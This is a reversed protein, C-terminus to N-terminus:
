IALLVGASNDNANASVQPAQSINPQLWQHGSLSFVWTDNRLEGDAGSGGFVVMSDQNHEVVTATHGARPTPRNTTTQQSVQIWTGDSLDHQWVDGLVHTDTPSTRSIGGMVTLVGGACVMSSCVRPAPAM